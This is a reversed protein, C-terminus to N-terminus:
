AFFEGIAKTVDAAINNRFEDTLLLEYESPNCVFGAELLVCPFRYERCVALSQYKAGHNSLGTTLTSYESIKKALAQSTDRSLLTLTGSAKNFDSALGVSNHHVSLMLDPYQERVLGARTALPVETDTDRLLTVAAGESELKEMIAISLALNLESETAAIDGGPGLAGCDSGGHGPDIVIHKGTLPGYSDYVWVDVTNKDSQEIAFGSIDRGDTRSIVLRTRTQGATIGAILKTDLGDGIEIGSGQSHSVTLVLPGGSREPQVSIWSDSSITFHLYKDRDIQAADAQKANQPELLNDQHIWRGGSTRYFGNEFGNAMIVSGAPIPYYDMMSGGKPSDYVYSEDKTVFETYGDSVTITFGCELEFATGQYEGLFKFGDLVLASSKLNNPLTLTGTYKVANLSPEAKDSELSVSIDSNEFTVTSGAPAYIELEVVEGSGRVIDSNPYATNDAFSPEDLVLQSSENERNIVITKSSQGNKFTFSNKGMELQVYVSFYGHETLSVEAGDMTLPYNIDAAGAISCYKSSTSYGSQPTSIVLKDSSVPQVAEDSQQKFAPVETQLSVASDDPLSSYYEKLLDAIGEHNNKISKYRFLLNGKCVTKKNSYELQRVIQNKDDWGKEDSGLKELNHGIYLKVGTGDCVDAWWDTLVGFPAVNNEFAWYLQPCIYDVWGEKVWRRSDSYIASYSSLGRTESGADNESRNCWIGFPSIGFEVDKKSAKISDHVSKVLQNVNDRRFDAINTFESGYKKYDGEDPYDSVSYPYFYDDFHIGDVDYNNVIEMVGNKVLERVEPLAPNYYVGGDSCTVYYEPHVIAPNTDSLSELVKEAGGTGIRYPNIWAHLEIGNQHAKEIFYELPDFGGDPAKGQEGTLVASWPFISSKYLADSHPRVQFFVANLGVDKCLAIIDDIESKLSSSTLGKKSPFDINGVSAVWLGRMQRDEGTAGASFQRFPFALMLLCALAAALLRKM